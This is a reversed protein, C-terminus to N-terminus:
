LNRAIEDSAIRKEGEGALLVASATLHPDPSLTICEDSSQKKTTGPSKTFSTM